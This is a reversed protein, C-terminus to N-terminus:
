GVSHLHLVYNEPLIVHFGTEMSVRRGPTLSARDLLKVYSLERAELSRLGSIRGFGALLQKRDAEAWGSSPNMERMRVGSAKIALHLPSTKVSVNGGAAQVVLLDKGYLRGFDALIRQPSVM